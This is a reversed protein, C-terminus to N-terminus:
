ESKLNQFGSILEILRAITRFEFIFFFFPGPGNCGLFLAIITCSTLSAELVDGGGGRNKNNVVINQFTIAIDLNLIRSNSIVV